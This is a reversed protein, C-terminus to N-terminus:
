RGAAQSPLHTQAEALLARHATDRLEIEACRLEERTIMHPNEAQLKTLDNVKEAANCLVLLWNDRQEISLSRLFDVLEDVEVQNLDPYGNSWENLAVDCAFDALQQARQEALEQRRKLKRVDIVVATTASM